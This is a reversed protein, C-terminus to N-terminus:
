KGKGKNKGGKSTVSIPPPNNRDLFNKYATALVEVPVVKKGEALVDSKDPLYLSQQLLRTLLDPDNNAAGV